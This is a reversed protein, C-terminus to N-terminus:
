LSWVQWMKSIQSIQGKEKIKSYMQSQFPKKGGSDNCMKGYAPCESKDHSKGCFKCDSFFHSNKGRKIADVGLASPTVTGLLKRQALKSEIKRAEYLPRVSNDTELIEGLLHDQIEKNEIGFIFQDKLLENSDHKYKCEPLVLRLQSMYFDCTQSAKQKMNRFKSHALIQNSEPRFVKELTRFVEDISNIETDVSTLIQTAIRDLWNVHLRARQKDKLDSLPCEFLIKCDAKFQEIETLKDHANWDFMPKVLQLGSVKSM